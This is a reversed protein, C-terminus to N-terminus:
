EGDLIDLNWALDKIKAESMKPGDSSQIDVKDLSAALGSKGRLGPTESSKKVMPQTPSEKKKSGFLGKKKKAQMNKEYMADRKQWTYLKNSFLHTFFAQMMVIFPRGNFKYFALALGLLVPIAAIPYKFVTPITRFALYGLGAGGALFIFQHLTFPGFIKDKVDIFQPVEYRMYINYRKNIQFFLFYALYRRAGIRQQIM